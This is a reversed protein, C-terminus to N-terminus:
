VRRPSCRVSACLPRAEPIAGAQRGRLRVLQLRGSRLGGTRSVSPLDRRFSGMGGNRTSSPDEPAKRAHRCRFRCRDWRHDVRWAAPRVSRRWHLCMELSHSQRRTEKGMVAERMSLSKRAGVANGSAFRDDRFGLNFSGSGCARATERGVLSASVTGKVGPRGHEREAAHGHSNATRDFRAPQKRAAFATRYAATRRRQGPEVPCYSVAGVM